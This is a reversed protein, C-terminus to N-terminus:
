VGNVIHITGSRVELSFGLSDQPRSFSTYLARRKRKADDCGYMAILDWKDKCGAYRSPVRSFLTQLSKDHKTKRKIFDPLKNGDWSFVGSPQRM